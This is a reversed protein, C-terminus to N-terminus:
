FHATGTESAITKKPRWPPIEGLLLSKGASSAKNAVFANVAGWRPHGFLAQDDILQLARALLAERLVAAEVVLAKAELQVLRRARKTASRSWV